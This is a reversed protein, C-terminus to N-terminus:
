STEGRHDGDSEGEASRAIGLDTRIGRARERAEAAAEEEGEDARARAYAELTLAEEFRPLGRTRILELARDLFLFAEPERRARAVEALLRYVEPLRRLIRSRLAMAEADRACAGAELARDQGLLAHGLNVRIVVGAEGGEDGLAALARRFRIEARRPEGRALELQGRGNQLEVRAAPEDLPAAEEEARRYCRESEELAGRERATIGLNQLLRWRLARCVQPDLANSGGDLIALAQRYWGEAEEWRGRDVSVNGRGTAAVVADHPRNGDRARRFADAYLRAAEDVDGTARACRAERRLAKALQATESVLSLRAAARAWGRAEATRGDGELAKSERLLETVAAEHDSRGLADILAAVTGYHRALRRGEDAALRHVAEGLGEVEVLRAGATGLEGSGSWRRGPDPRSAALLHEVMPRLAGTEPLLSLIGELRLPGPPSADENMCGRFHLPQAVRPDAHGLAKGPVHMSEMCLM